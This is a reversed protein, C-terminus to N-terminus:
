HTFHGLSTSNSVPSIRESFGPLPRLSCLQWYTRDYWPHLIRELYDGLGPRFQLCSVVSNCWGSLGSFDHKQQTWYHAPHIAQDDLIAIATGTSSCTHLAARAVSSYQGAFWRSSNGICDAPLLSRPGFYMDSTTTYLAGTM